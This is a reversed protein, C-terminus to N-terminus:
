QKTENKLIGNVEKQTINYKYFNKYFLTIEKNMDVEKYIEPQITKGLWKIMLPTEGCPADWRYIGAPAKYVAKNQVAKIKSWDQGKFKNKFIDETQFDSFNSMVIIDPNWAIIQEMTVNTWQGKVDKAVNEGGALTIFINNASKSAAVKLNEDRLYLVKPKKADKLATKKTNFYKEAEKHYKILKEAKEEKGLVKGLVEIGKQLDELTGYKLAIPTMGMNKLQEIEKTQYDWVVVIDPKMKLLEEMNMNFDNDVFKTNVNKLEPALKHFIQKEYSKKASPHIGAIRNGNGELTYVISSWPIPVIAIKEIKKPLVVKNGATDTIINGKDSAFGRLSTGLVFIVAIIAMISVRSKIWKKM